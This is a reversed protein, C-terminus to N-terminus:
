LVSRREVAVGLIAPKEHDSSILIEDYAANAARLIFGPARPNSPHLPIYLRVIEEGTSPDIAHVISGPKPEVLPDIVLWDGDFVSQRNTPGAMADGSVEIAYAERSVASSPAYEGAERKGEDPRKKLHYVIVIRRYTALKDGSAPAVGSIDGPECNFLTALKRAIGMKIM